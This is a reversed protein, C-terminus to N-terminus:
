EKPAKRRLQTYESPPCEYGARKVKAITYVTGNALRGQEASGIAARIQADIHDIRKTCEKKRAKLARMEDDLEILEGPLEVAGAHVRHLADLAEFSSDSGDPPPPNRDRVRDWFEDGHLIVRRILTEDREVTDWMFRQGGILCAVRCRAAGTVLMQQQAQIQYDFPTGDAWHSLLYQNGTKCELPEDLAEADLTALAWPYRKSRLLRGHWRHQIGTRVTFEEAVMKELRLGWYAAESLEGADLGEFAGIKDAYVHLASKWRSVGMVAPMESAGIGLTRAGLWQARDSSDGVVEYPVDAISIDNAVAASM